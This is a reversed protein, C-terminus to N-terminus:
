SEEIFDYSSEQNLRSNTYNLSLHHPHNGGSAMEKKRKEELETNLSDIIADIDNYIHKNAEVSDSHAQSKIHLKYEGEKFTINCIHCSNHRPNPVPTKIQM